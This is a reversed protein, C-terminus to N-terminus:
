FRLGDIGCFHLDGLAHNLEQRPLLPNEAALSLEASALPHLM